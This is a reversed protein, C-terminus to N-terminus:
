LIDDIKNYTEWFKATTICKREMDQIMYGQPRCMRRLAGPLHSYKSSIRKKVQSYKSTTTTPNSVIDKLKQFTEKDSSLIKQPSSLPTPITTQTEENRIELSSGPEIRDKSDDNDKDVIQKQKITIKLSKRPSSSERAIQKRKKTKPPSASVTPSRHTSPTIRHMGQTSVVPQPQNMPVNVKMFVTEYEKFDNTERIEATLFADLILM